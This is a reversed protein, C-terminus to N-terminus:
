SLRPSAAHSETMHNLNIYEQMFSLYRDRLLKNKLLKKECSYFRREANKRSEGLHHASQKLPLSVMFRRDVDRRTTEKFIRECEKEEPTLMRPSNIKELEWFRTILKHLEISLTSVSCSVRSDPSACISGSVVWGLRTEQLTPKSKGGTIKGPCLLTWFLDAGILMDMFGPKFYEPDALRIHSPAIPTIGTIELLIFCTLDAQFPAYLSQM